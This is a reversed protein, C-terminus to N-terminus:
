PPPSGPRAAGPRSGSAGPSPPWISTVRAPIGLPSRPAACLPQCPWRLSSDKDRVDRSLRAGARGIGPAIGGGGAVTPPVPPSNAGTRHELLARVIRASKTGPRPSPTGIRTPRLRGGGTPRAWGIKGMARSSESGMGPSHACGVTAPRHLRRRLGEVVPRAWGVCASQSRSQIAVVLNRSAPCLASAGEGAIQRSPGTAMLTRCARGTFVRRSQGCDRRGPYDSQCRRM